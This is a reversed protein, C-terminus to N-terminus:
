SSSSCFLANILYICIDHRKGIHIAAMNIKTTSQQIKISQIQKHAKTSHISTPAKPRFAICYLIQAGDWYGFLRRKTLDRLTEFGRSKYKSNGSRESIQCASRCCQQRHAQWIEFRHSLKFYWDRPKSVERSRVFIRRKPYQSPAWFRFRHSRPKINSTKRYKVEPMSWTIFGPGVKYPNEHRNLTIRKVCTAMLVNIWPSATKRM